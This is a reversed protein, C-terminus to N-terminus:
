DQVGGVVICSESDSPLESGSSEDTNLEVESAENRARRINKINASKKIPDMQVTKRKVRRQGDLQSKLAEAEQQLTALRQEM